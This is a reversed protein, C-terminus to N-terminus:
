VETNAKSVNIRIAMPLALGSVVQVSKFISVPVVCGTCCGDLVSQAANMIKGGFGAAIENMPSVEQLLQGLKKIKDCDTEIEIYALKVKKEYTVSINTTFGCIGAEISTKVNM